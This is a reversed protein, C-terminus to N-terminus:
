FRRYPVPSGVDRTIRAPGPPLHSGPTQDGSLLGLGAGRQEPGESRNLPAVASVPNPTAGVSSDVTSSLAPNDLGLPPELLQSGPDACWASGAPYDPGPTSGVVSSREHSTYRGRPIDADALAHQHFTSGQERQQQRVRADNAL